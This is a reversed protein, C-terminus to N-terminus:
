GRRPSRGKATHVTHERGTEFRLVPSNEYLTVNPGLSEALARVYAAPQIIVTGPMHSGGAYYDIGTIRKMDTADLTQYREGLSDLHKEFARLAAIGHGDTAGHYKGCPDFVSKPLGIEEAAERAFAIRRVTSSSRPLTTSAPVAM